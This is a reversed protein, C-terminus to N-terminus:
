DQLIIEQFITQAAKGWADWNLREEFHRRSQMVLTHYRQEDQYYEAIVKAYTHGQTGSPLVFGNEGNTIFETLPGTDAVLGPVGYAAAECCHIGTTESSTPILLFDSRLYLRELENRQM